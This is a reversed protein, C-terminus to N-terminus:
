AKAGDTLGKILKNFAKTADKSKGKGGLAAAVISGIAAHTLVAESAMQANVRAYAIRAEAWLTSLPYRAAHPHGQSRLFSM